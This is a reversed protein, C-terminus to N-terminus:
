ALALMRQRMVPLRQTNQKWVARFADGVAVYIDTREATAVHVTGDMMSLRLDITTRGRRANELRVRARDVELRMSELRAVWRHIAAEVSPDPDVGSFSVDISLAM